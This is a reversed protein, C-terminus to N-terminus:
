NLLLAESCVQNLGAERTDELINDTFFESFARPALLLAGDAWVTAGGCMVLLLLGIHIQYKM